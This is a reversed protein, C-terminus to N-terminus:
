RAAQKWASYPQRALNANYYREDDTVESGLWSPPDFAQQESRLEVEALVLGENAGTFRDIEWVLGGEHVVHRHKEIVAGMCLTDLMENADSLPIQYEYEARTMGSRRGKITLFAHHDAVRVRVTAADGTALYGQRVRTGPSNKWPDGSVLFKREIETAM